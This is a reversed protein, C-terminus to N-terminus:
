VASKVHVEVQVPEAVAGVGQQAVVPHVILRVNEGVVAIELRIGLRIHGHEQGVIQGFVVGGPALPEPAEDGAVM